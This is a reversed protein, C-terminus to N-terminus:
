YKKLIDVISGIDWGTTSSAGDMVVHKESM